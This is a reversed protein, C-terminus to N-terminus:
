SRAAGTNQLSCHTVQAGLPLTAEKRFTTIRELTEITEITTNEEYIEEYKGEIRILTTLVPCKYGLVQSDLHLNCFPCMVQARGARFNEGYEAMRTRYKFLTRKQEIKLEERLFYNQIKLEEYELNSMKTHENKMKLLKRFAIDKAKAKVIKKFADKTKSTIDNFNMSLEFEELDSKVLETWDGKSPNNWQAIFFRYLMGSKDSRLIRHLYNLRRSQIIIGVPIAGTELYFSETPTSKPVRLIRRLFLKDLNEFEQVENQTFNYWIEANTTIGNILMSERLLLAIEFYHPGFNVEDLINMIQAIKGLGKAIKNKINKTNKGDSCLVDGLYKEATVEPMKTGHVKLTPCFGRHAGGIHLKVCKSNGHQDPTHFKLKKLDIQSTLFTNLAVSEMGCRAIGCM